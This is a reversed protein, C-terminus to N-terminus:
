NGRTRNEANMQQQQHWVCRQHNEVHGLMADYQRNNLMALCAGLAAAYLESHNVDGDEELRAILMSFREYSM